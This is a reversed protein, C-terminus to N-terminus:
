HGEIKPNRWSSVTAVAVAFLVLVSGFVLKGQHIILTITKGEPGLSGWDHARKPGNSFNKM